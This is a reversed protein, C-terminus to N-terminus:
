HFIPQREELARDPVGIIDDHEPAYGDSRRVLRIGVWLRERDGCAPRIQKIDPLHARLSQAFTTDNPVAYKHDLCWMVYADFVAKKTVTAGPEIVIYRDAFEAIPNSVDTVRELLDDDVPVSFKGNENLRHIGQICWNMIGAIERELKETLQLDEKDLFSQTMKVPIIRTVVVNTKDPLKPIENSMLVIRADLKGEWAKAFKRDVSLQDEGSISLIREVALMVDSRGIRSDPILLMLKDIAVELGFREGLQHFSTSGVRDAGLLRKMLKQITGKGSRSPGHFYFIKHLDTRGSILCGMIEQLLLPYDDRDPWLEKLFQLWRVPEAADEEYDFPLSHTVFREPDHPLLRGTSVQYVGNRFHILDKNGDPEM